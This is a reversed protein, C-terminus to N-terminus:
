PFLSELFCKIDLYKTDQARACMNKGPGDAVTSIFITERALMGPKVGYLEKGGIWIQGVEKPVHLGSIDGAAELLFGYEEWLYEQWSEAFEGPAIVGMYRTSRVVQELLKKKGTDGDWLWILADFHMDSNKLLLYVFSAPLERSERGLFAEAGKEILYYTQENEVPIELGNLYASRSKEKWNRKRYAFGPLSVQWLTIHKKGVRVTQASVFYQWDGFRKEKGQKEKDVLFRVVTLDEM